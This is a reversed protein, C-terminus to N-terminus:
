YMSSEYMFYHANNKYEIRNIPHFPQVDRKGALFACFDAAFTQCNRRIESYTKGREIYNILYRVIHEKCSFSLRVDHSFTHRVDLFRENKGTHLKMFELHDNLNSAPVNTVRIESFDDSWPHIMAPPMSKYLSNPNENKDLLWNCKATYGGLGGLYALEVVTCYKGHDWELLAFSHYTLRDRVQVNDGVAYRHSIMHVKICKPSPALLGNSSKKLRDREFQKIMDEGFLCRDPDGTGNGEFWFVYGPSEKTWGIATYPPARLVARVESSRTTPFTPPENKKNDSSDWHTVWNMTLSRKCEIKVVELTKLAPWGNLVGSFIWKPKQEYLEFDDNDNSETYKVVSSFFDSSRVALNGRRPKICKRKADYFRKDIMKLTGKTSFKFDYNDPVLNAKWIQGGKEEGANCSMEYQLTKMSEPKGYVSRKCQSTGDLDTSEGDSITSEQDSLFKGAQVIPSPLSVLTEEKEDKKETAIDDKKDTAVEDVVMKSLSESACCLM